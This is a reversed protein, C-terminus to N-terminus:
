TSDVSMTTTCSFYRRYAHTWTSFLPTTATQATGATIFSPTAISGDTISGFTINSDDNDNVATDDDGFSDDADDDHDNM